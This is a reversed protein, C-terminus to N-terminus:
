QSGIICLIGRHGESFACFGMISNSYHVFDWSSSGYIGIIGRPVELLACFRMLFKWFECLGM